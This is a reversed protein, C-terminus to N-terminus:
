ERKVVEAMTSVVKQGDSPIMGGMNATGVQCLLRRTNLVGSKKIKLWPITDSELMMNFFDGFILRYSKRVVSIGM